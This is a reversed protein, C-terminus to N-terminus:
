ETLRANDGRGRVKSRESAGQRRRREADPTGTDRERKEELLAQQRGKVECASNM